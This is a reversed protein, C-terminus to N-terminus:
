TMVLSGSFTMCFAMKRITLLVNLFQNWCPVTPLNNWLPKLMSVTHTSQSNLLAFLFPHTGNEIKKYYYLICFRLTSQCSILLFKKSVKRIYMYQNFPNNRLRSSLTFSCEYNFQCIFLSWYEGFVVHILVIYIWYVTM